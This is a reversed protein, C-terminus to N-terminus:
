AIVVAGAGTIFAARVADHPQLRAVVRRYRELQIRHEDVLQPSRSLKYDLVWWVGSPPDGPGARRHVLRDIRLSEGGDVVPVENAAWLVGEARFFRECDASSLIADVVERVAEVDATFERAAERCLATLPIHSRQDARVAWELARHVARGLRSAQETGADADADDVPHAASAADFRAEFVPQWGPLRKVTAPPTESSPVAPSGSVAAPLQRGDAWPVAVSAIRQWWSQAARGRGGHPETASVVLRQRARTMAVYLGNLEERSRATVEQDLLPRLRPPCSSEAYIFACCTPHSQSVPWDMLLSATDPKAPEPWADVVFVVDSELGKAGHVTTLQVANPVPPSAIRLRRRKISRVFNYASAARAGDLTLTHALLAEIAACAALRRAPPVVALTREIVDGEHVIRDLLDHPPLRRAAEAWAALLTAARALAARPSSLAQVADWWSSCEDGQSPRLALADGAFSGTESQRAQQADRSDAIHRAISVLDDDDCGFVPSKLAQALSLDHGPSALADLLAVLDRAEPADMLSLEEVSASPVGREALALAVRGLAVRKRALVRIQGAAVGDAICLAVADAVQDAEIQQLVEDPERRPTNLSDRWGEACTEGEPTDRAM